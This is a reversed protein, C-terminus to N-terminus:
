NTSKSLQNKQLTTLSNVRKTGERECLLDFKPVYRLSNDAIHRDKAMEWNYYGPGVQPEPKADIGSMFGRGLNRNKTRDLEYFHLVSQAEKRQLPRSKSNKYYYDAM